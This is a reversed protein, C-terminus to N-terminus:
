RDRAFQTRNMSSAADLAERKALLMQGAVAGAQDEGTM